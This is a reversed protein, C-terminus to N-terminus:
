KCLSRLVQWGPKVAPELPEEEATPEFQNLLDSEYKACDRKKFSRESPLSELVSLALDMHAEDQAGQSPSNERLSKIQSVVRNLSLFVDKNKKVKGVEKELLEMHADFQQRVSRQSYIPIERGAQANFPVLLLVSWGCIVAILLVNKRM